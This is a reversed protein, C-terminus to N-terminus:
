PLQQTPLNHEKVFRIHIMLGTCGSDLLATTELSQSNDITELIVRTKLKNGRNRRIFFKPTRLENLAEIINENAVANLENITAESAEIHRTRHTWTSLISTTIPLSEEQIRQAIWKMTHPKQRQGDFRRQRHHHTEPNECGLKEAPSPELPPNPSLPDFNLVPDVSNLLKTPNRAQPIQSTISHRLSFRGEAMTTTSDRSSRDSHLSTDIHQSPRPKQMEEKYQYDALGLGNTLL